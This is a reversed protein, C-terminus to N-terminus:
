RRKQFVEYIVRSIILALSLAIIHDALFDYVIKEEHINMYVALATFLVSLSIIEKLSLKIQLGFIKFM